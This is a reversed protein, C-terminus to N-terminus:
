SGECRRIIALPVTSRSVQHVIPCDTFANQMQYKAIALYYYPRSLKLDPELEASSASVFAVSRKWDDFTPLETITDDDSAFFRASKFDGGVVVRMPEAGAQDKIWEMGERFSLGWYETEYNTQAQKLGGVLGNFYVYEYPHLAIMTAVIQACAIALFTIGALRVYRQTMREILWCTAIAAIAAVGPVVFLFQRMGDYLTSNKLIAYAPLAGIQLALLIVASRQMTSFTRFRWLMWGMGVTFLFWIMLPMTIGLWVPLYNWPLTQASIKQGQFLVVGPWNHDSLYAIADRFWRAPNQWSAPYCIITTVIWAIVTLSAFRLAAILRDRWRTPWMLLQIGYTFLAFLVIVFGGVRVGTLLGALLGFSLPLLTARNLGLRFYKDTQLANAVVWAGFWSCLIFLTAFPIDKPNFFSHGWFRPCLALAIPGIWAWKWGQFIAVIGAVAGYAILSSAFTVYHKFQIRELLSSSGDGFLIAQIRYIAEALTNFVPGYYALNGPIPNGQTILDVQWGVMAIEVTEDPSVGYHNVTSLGILAIAGLVISLKLTQVQRLTQGLHVWFKNM